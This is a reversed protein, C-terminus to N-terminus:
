NQRRCFVDKLVEFVATGPWSKRGERNQNLYTALNIIEDETVIGDAMIQRIFDITAQNATM